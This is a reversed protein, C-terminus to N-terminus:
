LDALVKMFQELLDDIYLLPVAKSISDMRIPLDDQAINNFFYSVISLLVRNKGSPEM